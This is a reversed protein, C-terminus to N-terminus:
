LGAVREVDKDTFDHRIDDFTKPIGDRGNSLVQGFGQARCALSGCAPLISRM